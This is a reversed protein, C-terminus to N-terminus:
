FQGQIQEIKQEEQEAHYMGIHHRLNSTEKECYPCKEKVLGTGLHVKAIHLKLNFKSYTAYNCQDCVEDRTGTHIRKMHILMRGRESFTKDCQPCPVKVREVGEQGCLTRELHRKMDKFIEGCFVCPKNLRETHVRNFHRDLSGKATTKYDCKSCLFQKSIEHTREIHIKCALNTGYHKGCYHCSVGESHQAEMHRDLAPKTPKGNGCINCFYSPHSEEQHKKFVSWISFSEGCQDCVIDINHKALMHRQKAAERKFRLDVDSSRCIDCRFEKGKNKKRKKKRLTKGEGGLGGESTEGGSSSSSSTVIKKRPRGRKKAPRKEEEEIAPSPSDMDDFEFDNGNQHLDEDDSFHDLREEKKPKGELMNPTKSSRRPRNREWTEEEESSQGSLAEKKVGSEIKSQGPHWLIGLCAVADGLEEGSVYRGQLLSALATVSAIRLPLSIASGEGGVEKLLNAVLPSHFALLHSHVRVLGGCDSILVLDKPGQGLFSTLARRHNTTLVEWMKLFSYRFSYKLNISQNEFIDLSVM